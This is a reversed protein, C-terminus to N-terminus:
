KVIIVIDLEKVVRAIVKLVLKKEIQYSLSIM